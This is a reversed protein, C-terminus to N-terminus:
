KSRTSYNARVIRPDIQYTACFKERAEQCTRSQNTSCLYDYSHPVTNTRRVYIDIKRYLHM